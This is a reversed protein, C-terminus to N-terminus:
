HKLGAMLMATLEEELQEASLQKRSKHWFEIGRVASLITLVSVYTNRKTFQGTIIGEEIIASFRREYNRRMNLFETLFPEKLHKWDRNSVYVSEFKGLMMRIHFRIIHEVKQEPTMDTNELSELQEMFLKGVNFCIDRLLDDKSSIHNYLSAAEMGIEDALLRMSSANFGKERFLSTAKAQIQEKRSIKKATITM